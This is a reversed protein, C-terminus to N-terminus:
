RHADVIVDVAHGVNTWVVPRGRNDRGCVTLGGVHKNWHCERSRLYLWLSSCAVLMMAATLVLRKM